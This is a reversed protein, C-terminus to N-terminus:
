ITLIRNKFIDSIEEKAAVIKFLSKMMEDHSNALMLTTIPFVRFAQLGIKKSVFYEVHERNEHVDVLM